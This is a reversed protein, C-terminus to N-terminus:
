LKNVMRKKRWRAWRRYAYEGRRERKSKPAVGNAVDRRARVEEAIAILTDGSFAHGFDMLNKMGIRDYAVAANFCYFGYKFASESCRAANPDGTYSPPVIEMDTERHRGQARQSSPPLSRHVRFGEGKDVAM